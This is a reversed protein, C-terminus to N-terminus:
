HTILKKGIKVTTAAGNIVQMSSTDSTKILTLLFKFSKIILIIKTAIIAILSFQLYTVTLIIDNNLTKLILSYQSFITLILNDCLFMLLKTFFPYVACTVSVFVLQYYRPRTKEDLLLPALYHLLLLTIITTLYVSHDLAGLVMFVLMNSISLIVSILKVIIDSFLLEGVTLYKRFCNDIATMECKNEKDVDIKFDLYKEDNVKYTEANVAYKSMYDNICSQKDSSNSCKLDFFRYMETYHNIQNIQPRYDESTELRKSEREVYFEFLNYLRLILTDQAHVTAFKNPVIIDISRFFLPSKTAFPYSLTVVIVISVLFSYLYKIASKGDNEVFYLDYLKYLRYFVLSILLFLYLDSKYIDRFFSNSFVQSKYASFLASSILDYKQIIIKDM